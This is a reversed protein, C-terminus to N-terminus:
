DGPVPRYSCKLHKWKVKNCDFNYLPSLMVIYLMCHTCDKHICAYLGDSLLVYLKSLAEQNKQERTTMATFVVCINSVIQNPDPVIPHHTGQWGCKFHDTKIHHRFLDRATGGVVGVTFVSCSSIKVWSLCYVFDLSNVLTDTCCLSTCYSTFWSFIMNFHLTSLSSKCSKHKHLSPKTIWHTIQLLGTCHIPSSQRSQWTWNINNINGPIM